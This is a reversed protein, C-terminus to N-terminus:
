SGSTVLAVATSALHYSTPLILGDSKKIRDFVYLSTDTVYNWLLTCDSTILLVAEEDTLTYALNRSAYRKSEYDALYRYTTTSGEPSLKRM